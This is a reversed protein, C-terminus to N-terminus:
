RRRPGSKALGKGNGNGKDASAVTGPVRKALPPPPTSGPPQPVAPTWPQIAPCELKEPEGRDVDCSTEFIQGTTTVVELIVRNATEAITIGCPNRPYGTSNASLNYWTYAPTMPNGANFDYVGALATGNPLLVAKYKVEEEDWSTSM